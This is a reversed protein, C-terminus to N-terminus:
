TFSTVLSSTLTSVCTSSDKLSYRLIASSPISVRSSVKVPEVIPIILNSLIGRSVCERLALLEFQRGRFIPFYM